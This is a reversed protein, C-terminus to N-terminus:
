SRWQTDGDADFRYKVGTAVSKTAAGDITEGGQAALTLTGPGLNMVVLARSKRIGVRRASSMTVTDGGAGAYIVLDWSADIIRPGTVLQVDAERAALVEDRLEVLFTWLMDLLTDLGPIGTPNTRKPVPRM